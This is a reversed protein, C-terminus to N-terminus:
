RIYIEIYMVSEKFCTSDVLAQMFPKIKESIGQSQSFIFDKLRLYNAWELQQM